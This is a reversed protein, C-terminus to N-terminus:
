PMGRTPPGPAHRECIPITVTGTERDYYKGMADKAGAAAVIWSAAAADSRDNHEPDVVASMRAFSVCVLCEEGDAPPRTQVHQM